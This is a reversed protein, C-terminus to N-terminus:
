LNTANIIRNYVGPDTDGETSFLLIKATSNLELAALTATHEPESLLSEVLGLTVAGSEGSVVPEDDGIPKAYRRMGKVSIEDDCVIFASCISSLITWALSSPEGCALGAMITNLNGSDPDGLFRHPRGDGFKMSEFFCPAGEPEVLIIKPTPKPHFVLYAALAAAMSGVGAQLFIHTPWGEQHQAQCQQEFETLLSFYGRMIDLPIEEYGSWATDQMLVWRNANAIESAFKVTDDYNFETIEASESFRQIAKLRFDSSGKPMYVHSKCGFLHACWAVARGHNGDTATVFEVSQYESKRQIIQNFNLAKNVEGSSRNSAKNIVQSLQKAVAYSAGLMKFAKLGFRESEDKVWITNISLSKALDNLQILPSPKYGPISHHFEVVAEIEAVSVLREITQSLRDKREGLDLACEKTTQPNNIFCGIRNTSSM